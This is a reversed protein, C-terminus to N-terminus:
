RPRGRYEPLGRVAPRPLGRDRGRPRAHRTRVRRLAGDVGWADNGLPSVARAEAVSVDRMAAVLERVLQSSKALKTSEGDAVVFMAWFPPRVLESMNLPRAIAKGGADTLEGISAV